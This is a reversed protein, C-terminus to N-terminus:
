TCMIMYVLMTVYGTSFFFQRGTSHNTMHLKLRGRDDGCFDGREDKGGKREGGKGRRM